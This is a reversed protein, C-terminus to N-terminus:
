TKKIGHRTKSIIFTSNQLLSLFIHICLIRRGSGSEDKSLLPLSAIVFIFKFSRNCTFQMCFYSSLTLHFLVYSMNTTQFTEFLLFSPKTPYETTEM